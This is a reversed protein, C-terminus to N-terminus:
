RIFSIMKAIVKLLLFVEKLPLYHSFAVEIITTVKLIDFKQIKYLYPMYDSGNILASSLASILTYLRYCIPIPGTNNM